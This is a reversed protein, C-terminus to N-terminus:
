KQLVSWRVSKDPNQICWQLSNNSIELLPNMREAITSTKVARFNDTHPIKRTWIKARKSQIRHSVSYRDTNLLIRFFVSWFFESYPRKKRLSKRPFVEAM